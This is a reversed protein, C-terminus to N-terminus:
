TETRWSTYHLNTPSVKPVSPSSISEVLRKIVEGRPGRSDFWTRRLVNPGFQERIVCEKKCVACWKDTDCEQIGRFLEFCSKHSIEPSPFNTLREFEENWAVVYSGVVIRRGGRDSESIEKVVYAPSKIDYVDEEKFKEVKVNYMNVASM